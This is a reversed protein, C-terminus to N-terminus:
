AMSSSIRLLAMSGYFLIATRYGYLRIDTTSSYLWLVFHCGGPIIAAGCLFVLIAVRLLGFSINGGRSAACLHYKHEKGPGFIALHSGNFGKLWDFHMIHERGSGPM